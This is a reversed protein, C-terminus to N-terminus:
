DPLQKCCALIERRLWQHAPDNQYRKHWVLHFPFQGFDTPTEIMKLPREKVLQMCIRKPLTAVYPSNEILAPVANFHTVSCLPTRSIGEQHLIKFIGSRLKGSPKVIIHQLSEFQKITIKKDVSAHDASVICALRETTATRVVLNDPPDSMRGFVLEAQGVMIGSDTIDPTLTSLQLSVNPAKLQLQPLLKPLIIFEFYDNAAIEFCRQEKAPDFDQQQLILRDIDSLAQQIQPHMETSKATPRMGYKSRIFLPDNFLLRLRGLIASMAPQSVGVREAAKSVNGEVYLADFAKMLNLDYRM